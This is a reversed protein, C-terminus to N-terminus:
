IEDLVSDKSKWSIEFYLHMYLCCKYEILIRVSYKFCTLKDYFDFDYMKQGEMM